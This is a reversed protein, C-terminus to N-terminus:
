YRYKGNKDKTPKMDEDKEKDYIRLYVIWEFNAYEAVLDIVLNSFEGTADNM